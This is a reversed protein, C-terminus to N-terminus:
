GGLMKNSFAILNTLHSKRVQLDISKVQKHESIAELPIEVMLKGSISTLRYSSSGGEHSKIYYCCKSEEMNWPVQEIVSTESIILLQRVIDDLGQASLPHM